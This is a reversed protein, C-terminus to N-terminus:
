EENEELFVHYAYRLTMIIHDISERKLKNPAAIALARGLTSTLILLLEDNSECELSDVFSELKTCLEIVKNHDRIM